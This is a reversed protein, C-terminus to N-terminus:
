FGSPECVRSAGGWHHTVSVAAVLAGLINVLLQRSQNCLVAAQRSAAVPKRELLRYGLNFLVPAGLGHPSLLLTSGADNGAQHNACVQYAM